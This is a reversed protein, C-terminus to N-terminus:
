NWSKKVQKYLYENLMNVDGRAVALSNFEAGSRKICDEIFEIIESEGNHLYSESATSKLEILEEVRSRIQAVSDLEKLMVSFEIPPMEDRELIWLCSVSTRLAYFFKKLRYEQMGQIEELIKKAMSLYHHITAKRSYFNSALKTFGDLFETDVQYIIPSQIRELLPANSKALLRLSKRLEWGSIDLDKNELMLEITDKPENTKLYWDLQHVYIIRIDFDSDPSPFGWARSGTECALLIKIGRNKEIEKLYSQIKETM